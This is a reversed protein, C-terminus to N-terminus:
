NPFYKKANLYWLGGLGFLLTIIGLVLFIGSYSKDKLIFWLVIGIIGLIIPIIDPIYTKLEGGNQSSAM